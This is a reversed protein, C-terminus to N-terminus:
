PAVTPWSSTFGSKTFSASANPIRPMRMSVGSPMPVASRSASAPSREVSISTGSSSRGAAVLQGDMRKRLWEQLTPTKLGALIRSRDAWIAKKTIDIQARELVQLALIAAEEDIVRPGTMPVEGNPGLTVRIINGLTDYRADDSALWIAAQMVPYSTALSSQLATVVKALENESPPPGVTVASDTSGTFM